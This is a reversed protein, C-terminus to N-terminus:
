EAVNLSSKLTDPSVFKFEKVDVDSVTLPSVYIVPLVDIPKLKLAPVNVKVVDAVVLLVSVESNTLFVVVPLM